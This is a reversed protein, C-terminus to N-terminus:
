GGTGGMVGQAGWSGGWHGGRVKWWGPPAGPPAGCGCLEMALLLASVAVKQPPFRLGLGGAAGDRLLAWSVGPLRGWGGGGRRGGWRGVALLFQLLYQM